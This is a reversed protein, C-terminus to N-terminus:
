INKNWTSSKRAVPLEDWNTTYEPSRFASRMKWNQHGQTAATFIKKKGYVMQSKALIASIKEHKNLEELQNINNEEFLSMQQYRFDEFSSLFLGAKMYEYGPVFIEELLQHAHSIIEFPNYTSYFLTKYKTNAYYKKKPNHPDTRLFVGITRCATQQEEMKQLAREAYVTLAEKLEDLCTVPKGFSRTSAIHKKEKKGPQVFISPHGKIERLLRIGVVGGFFKRAVNETMTAYFQYANEIRFNRKLKLANRKGMGWVDEIPTERLAKEIDDNNQLVYVCGTAKKDKKAIRNAVKALVKTPAIGISVPIGTHQLVTQRVQLAYSRYDHINQHQLDLFAEDISYVEIDPNISQLTQMVRRSMDAYLAYN